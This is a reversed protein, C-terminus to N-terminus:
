SREVGDSCFLDNGNMVVRSRRGASIGAILSILSLNKWYQLDPLVPISAFQVKKVRLFRNYIGNVRAPDPVHLSVEAWIKGNPSADKRTM